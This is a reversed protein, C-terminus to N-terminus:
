EADSSVQRYIGCDEDLEQRSAMLVQQSDETDVPRKSLYDCRQDCPWQQAVQCTLLSFRARLAIVHTPPVKHNGHAAYGQDLEDNSEHEEGDKLAWLIVHAFAPIILGDADDM